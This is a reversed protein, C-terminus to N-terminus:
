RAFFFEVVPTVDGASINPRSGSRCPIRSQVIFCCWDLFVQSRNPNKNLLVIDDAYELEFLKRNIFIDIGSVVFSFEAAEM